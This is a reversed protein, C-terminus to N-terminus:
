PAKRWMGARGIAPLRALPPKNKKGTIRGLAASAGDILSRLNTNRTASAKEVVPAKRTPPQPEFVGPAGSASAPVPSSALAAAPGVPDVSPDSAPEWPGCHEGILPVLQGLWCPRVHQMSRVLMM